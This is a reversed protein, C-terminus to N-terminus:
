AAAAGEAQREDVLHGAEFEYGARLTLELGVLARVQDRL